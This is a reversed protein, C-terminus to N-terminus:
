KLFMYLAFVAAVVFRYYAFYTLKMNQVFKIFSVVALLAVVFAVLFGVIFFPLDNSSIADYNKLFYVGSAGFMIPIAMIFTFDASAARSVGSLMGGAITSGSRSFGPWISVLQWLGIAFAQRYTLDDLVMTKPQEKRQEAIILLIGGLVLGILVTTTNFLKEDVVDNFLVGIVGAPVIGILIHLLNLKRGTRSESKRKVLGFLSLIRKWYIIVVAMIAGLQIVFDFTKMVEDNQTNLLSQTLIMHGTSSVPLFETLGEVIGIIIAEFITHM